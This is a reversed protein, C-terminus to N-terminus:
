KSSGYEYWRDPGPQGASALIEYLRQGDQIDIIEPPHEMFGTCAWGRNCRMTIIVKMRREQHAFSEAARPDGSEGLGRRVDSVRLARLGRVYDLPPGLPVV